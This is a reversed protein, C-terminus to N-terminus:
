PMGSLRLKRREAYRRILRFLQDERQSPVECFITGDVSRGPVPGEYRLTMERMDQRSEPIKENIDLMLQSSFVPTCQITCATFQRMELICSPAARRTLDLFQILQQRYAKSVTLRFSVNVGPLPTISFQEAFMRERAHDQANKYFWQAHEDSVQVRFVTLIKRIWLKGPASMIGGLHHARAMAPRARIIIYLAEPRSSSRTAHRRSSRSLSGPRKWAKARFPTCTSASLPMQVTSVM